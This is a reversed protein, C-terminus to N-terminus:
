STKRFYFNKEHVDAAFPEWGNMGLLHIIWNLNPKSRGKKEKVTLRIEGPRDKKIVITGSPNESDLDIFIAEVADIAYTSLILDDKHSLILMEYQSM